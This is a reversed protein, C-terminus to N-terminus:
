SLYVLNYDDFSFIIHFYLVICSLIVNGMLVINWPAMDEYLPLKLFSTFFRERLRADLGLRLITILTVGYITTYPIPFDDRDRHLFISTVKHQNPHMGHPLKYHYFLDDEQSREEDYQPVLGNIYKEENLDRRKALLLEPKTGDKRASLIINEDFRSTWSSSLDGIRAVAEETYTENVEIHMTYTRTHGDKAYDYHHHVKRTMNVIDVRILLPYRSDDKHFLPTLAVKTIGNYARTAGLLWKTEFSKYKEQPHNELKNLSDWYEINADTLTNVSNYAMSTSSHYVDSVSRFPGSERNYDFILSMGYSVASSLPASLFTTLSSSLTSGVEGGWDSVDDCVVFSEMLGKSLLQFRFLEPSDYINKFISSDKDVEKLCVANNDINLDLLMKIHQNVKHKNREISV